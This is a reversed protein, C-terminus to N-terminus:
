FNEEGSEPFCLNDELCTKHLHHDCGHLQVARSKDQIDLDCSGCIVRPMEFYSEPNKFEKQFALACFKGFSVAEEKGELHLLM